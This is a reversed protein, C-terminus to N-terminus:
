LSKRQDHFLFKKKLNSNSKGSFSMPLYCTQPNQRSNPSDPIPFSYQDPLVVVSSPSKKVSCNTRQQTLPLFSIHSATSHSEGRIAAQELPRLSSSHSSWVLLIRQPSNDLSWELGLGFRTASFPLSLRHLHLIIDEWPSLPFFSCHPTECDSSAVLSLFGFGKRTEPISKAKWYM